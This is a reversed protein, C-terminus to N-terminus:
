AVEAGEDAVDFRILNAAEEARELAAEADDGVALIAGARDSGRRLTGFAHGARRYVRIGLVGDLAFAEELGGVGRLLGRPAVLFKVCAGGARAKPAVQQRRLPEGLAAAIALENLDVGVAARCLEADHGGGLRAALEGVVPVGGDDPVLV